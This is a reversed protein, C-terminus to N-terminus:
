SNWGTTAKNWGTTAKNWGTTGALTTRSHNWGTTNGAHTQTGVKNWGTTKNGGWAETSAGFSFAIPAAIAVTSVVIKRVSANFM